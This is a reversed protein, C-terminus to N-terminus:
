KKDSYDDYYEDITRFQPSLIKFTHDDMDIEDINDLIIEKLLSKKLIYNNNLSHNSNNILNYIEEPLIMKFSEYNKIDEEYLICYNDTYLYEVWQWEIKKNKIDNM